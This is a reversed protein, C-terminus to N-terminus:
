DVELQNLNSNKKTVNRKARLKQDSMKKEYATVDFFPVYDNINSSYDDFESLDSESLTDDYSMSQFSKAKIYSMKQELNIVDVMARWCVNTFFAFANESVTIDFKRIKACCAVLANSVMEDLFTYNCFNYRSGLKKAIALFQLAIEDPIVPIEAGQEELLLCKKNYEDIAKTFEKNSIYNAM